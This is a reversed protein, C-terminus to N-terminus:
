LARCDSDHSELDGLVFGGGHFFVLIPAPDEVGEPRYIRVPISQGGADITRDEVSAVEEGTGMMATMSAMAARADAIPMEWIPPAEMSELQELMKKTQPDLPM